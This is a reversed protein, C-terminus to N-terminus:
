RNKSSYFPRGQARVKAALYEKWLGCYVEFQGATPVQWDKWALSKLRAELQMVREAPTPNRFKM